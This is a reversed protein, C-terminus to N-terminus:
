FGYIDVFGYNYGYNNNYHSSGNISKFNFKLWKRLATASLIPLRNDVSCCSTANLSIIQRAVIVKLIRQCLVMRCLILGNQSPCQRLLCRKVEMDELKTTKDPMPIRSYKIESKKRRMEYSEFMWVTKVCTSSM